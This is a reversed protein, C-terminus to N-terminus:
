KFFKLYIVTLLTISTLIVYLMFIEYDTIPIGIYFDIINIINITVIYHLFMRYYNCLQFTYSTLYLYICPLLSLSGIYNLAKIEIYFYSAISNFCAIGALLMPLVKTSLLFARFLTKNLQNEAM